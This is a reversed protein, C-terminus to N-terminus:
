AIERPSAQDGMAVLDNILTIRSSQRSVRQVKEEEVGEQRGEQHKTHDAVLDPVPEHTM